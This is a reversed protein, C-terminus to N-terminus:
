AAALKASLGHFTPYESTILVTPIQSLYAAFRGKDEFRRRFGSHIFRDGLRPVIGGGIYMGGSAGVTLAVNATATGLMECFVEITLECIPCERALARRIIEAVSLAAPPAQKLQCLARYVINLGIGSLLREVSVHPFERWAFQLIQCELENSPAVNVHGGETVLATWEGNIPVLASVGFGTGPGVLGIAGDKQASGGGVQRKEEAGLYPIAMAMASFDNVLVLSRLGLEERVANTSFDWDHNTMKVRDGHINAAIAIAADQVESAGAAIAPLSSLYAQIAQPLTRYENCALTAIAIIDGREREIGFRANTGGIDALLKPECLPGRSRRKVLKGAVTSEIM